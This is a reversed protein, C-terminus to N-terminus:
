TGSGTFIELWDMEPRLAPVKIDGLRTGTNVQRGVFKVLPQSAIAITLKELQGMKRAFAYQPNTFLRQEVLEALKAPEHKYKHQKDIVLAYGPKHGPVPVLIRFGSIGELCSLVFSESLKEGVLDCTLGTRGSFRFAPIDNVFGTCIVQDGTRYRYLGGSTTIVIEYPKEANVEHALHSRGDASLFEFFGCDVALSNQGRQDPVTVVSETSLLGKAQFAAQPLRKKLLEFFPQSSADAWCSVLKLLPWLCRTDKKADFNELRERGGSNAPLPHGAVQGGSNLLQSLEHGRATMADLLSLLFTPSWVSIMVLDDHSLLFYLTALQWDAVNDIEGVWPPVASIGMFNTAAGPGLYAGDPLGVPVGTASVRHQRTAPSIAFYASGSSLGFQQITKGLWPLLARQFDALSSATYPILKSGGSSGGTLEFAVPQGSFLVDAEGRYIRQIDPELDEYTCLPLQNRFDDGCRIDRFSHRRGYECAQNNNLCGLLWNEQRQFSSDAPEPRAGLTSLRQWASNM